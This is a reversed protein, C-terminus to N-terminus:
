CWVVDTDKGTDIDERSRDILNTYDQEARKLSSREKECQERFNRM